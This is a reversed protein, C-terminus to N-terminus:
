KAAELVRRAMGRLEGATKWDAVSIMRLVERAEDRQKSAITHMDCWHDSDRELQQCRQKLPTKKLFEIEERAEDREAMVKTKESLLQAADMSAKGWQERAEDRERELKRAFDASVTSAGPLPIYARADTEPTPRMKHGGKWKGITRLFAEARQRATAHYRPEGSACTAHALHKNYPALNGVESILLKEAEHMANLDNCYDPFAYPEVVAHAWGCAEAIAINIQENTM